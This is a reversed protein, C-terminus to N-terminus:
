IRMTKAQRSDMVEVAPFTAASLITKQLKFSAQSASLKVAAWSDSASPQFGSQTWGPTELRADYTMGNYEDDYIVPGETEMWSGDTGM